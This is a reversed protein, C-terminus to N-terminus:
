LDLLLIRLMLHLRPIESFHCMQILIMVLIKLVVDAVLFFSFHPLYLPFSSPLFSYASTHQPQFSVQAQDQKKGGPSAPAPSPKPLLHHKQEGFTLFVHGMPLPNSKTIDKPLLQM